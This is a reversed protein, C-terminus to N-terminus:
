LSEAAIRTDNPVAAVATSVPLVANPAALLTREVLWLLLTITSAFRNGNSLPVHLIVAVASM